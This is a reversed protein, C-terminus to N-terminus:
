SGVLTNLNPFPMVAGARYVYQDAVSMIDESPRSRGTKVGNTGRPNALYSGSSYLTVRKVAKYAQFEAVFGYGGDGPQISQDVVRTVPGLPTNVTDTVDYPGTPLKIGLGVAINQRSDSPNPLLWTRGVLTIDGLGYAHTVIDPARESYRRSLLIPTNLSLTFRPNVEYTASVNLIHVMNNVETQETERHKQEEDGVFHRHSHFYRYDVEIEWRRPSLWSEGRSYGAMWASGSTHSDTICVSQRSAVCGQAPANQNLFCLWVFIAVGIFLLRGIQYCFQRLM